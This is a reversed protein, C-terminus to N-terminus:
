PENDCIALDEKLVSCYEERQTHVCWTKKIWEDM